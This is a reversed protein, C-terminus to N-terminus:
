FVDLMFLAITSYVHVTKVGPSEKYTQERKTRDESMEGYRM